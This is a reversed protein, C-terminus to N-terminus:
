KANGYSINATPDLISKTTIMFDLFEDIAATALNKGEPTLLYYKRIRKGINEQETIVIGEAELKHLLPYLAGETIQIKGQTLVKVKSTIEYGYMRGEQELLKLIIPKLTGKIIEKSYMPCFYM